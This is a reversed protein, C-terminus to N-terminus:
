SKPGDAAPSTAANLADIVDWRDEEGVLETVTDLTLTPDAKRALYWLQYRVGELGEFERAIADATPEVGGGAAVNIAISLSRDLVLPSLGEAIANVASLPHVCKEQALERMRSRLRAFDSATPAVVRFTKGKVTVKGPEAFIPQM